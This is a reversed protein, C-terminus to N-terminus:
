PRHHWSQVSVVLELWQVGFCHWGDSVTHALTRIVSGLLLLDSELSPHPWPWRTDDSGRQSLVLARARPLSSGQWTVSLLQTVRGPRETAKETDSPFAQHISAETRNNRTGSSVWPGRAPDGAHPLSAWRSGLGLSGERGWAPLIM